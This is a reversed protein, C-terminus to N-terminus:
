RAGKRRRTWWADAPSRGWKVSACHAAADWLYYACSLSGRRRRARLATWPFRTVGHCETVVAAGKGGSSELVAFEVAEGKAAREMRGFCVSDLCRGCSDAPVCDGFLEPQAGTRNVCGMCRRLRAAGREGQYMWGKPTITRAVADMAGNVDSLTVRERTASALADAVMDQLPTALGALREMARLDCPLAAVLAAGKASLGKLKMRRCIKAPSTGLEAALTAYDGGDKVMSLLRLFEGYPTLGENPWIPSVGGDSFRSKKTM